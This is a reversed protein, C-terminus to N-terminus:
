NLEVLRGASDTYVSVKVKASVTACKNKTTVTYVTTRKPSAIPQAVDSRDLTEANDWQYSQGDIAPTGIRVAQPHGPINLITKDLGGDAIPPQCPNDLVIVKNEMVVNGKLPYAGQGPHLDKGGGWDTGWSNQQIFYVGAPQGHKEGRLYGFQGYCHNAPGGGPNPVWGGNKLSSASGCVEIAGFAYHANIFDETTPKGGSESRLVYTRKAQERFPVEKRCKGDYGTYPYDAEYVLGKPSLFDDVAIQGGNKATGFGSCDIIRQTSIHMRKKLSYFLTAEGASRAAEAWCSGQPQRNVHFDPPTLDLEEPPVGDGYGDSPMHLYQARHLGELQPLYGTPYEQEVGFKNKSKVTDTAMFESKLVHVTVSSKVVGCKNKATLTYVTTEKPQAVTVSNKPSDLHDKPSWEYETDPEKPMGIYVFDSMDPKVVIYQDGGADAVPQPNCDPIVHTPEDSISQRQDDCGVFAIALVLAAVALLVHFTESFFLRIKLHM